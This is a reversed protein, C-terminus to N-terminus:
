EEWHPSDSIDDWHPTDLEPPDPDADYQVSEYPDRFGDHAGLVLQCVDDIFEEPPPDFVPITLPWGIGRLIRRIEEPHTVFTVIKIKQGCSLCTLPDVEYIRSILKAWGRSAKAVKEKTEQMAKSKDDLRKQANAAVQKRLPSSPAFIGHYHRRHRRPYPIFRSIREIFELPELQMFTKGTHCVKPFRYHIWPGNFRINESKFPARACYRILRELGDSDWAEVKVSANLSFGTTEYSLMKMMEEKDFFGRRCFYRLVRGQIAEQTDVIDDQTLAAEHFGLGDESIFIGDAVIIHFHPHYNLTNGFQQIFSIAGIQPNKVAPSCVILRKRIEDVVIKLVTQLTKHNELYHRIRMPFSIVFQRYPVRPLVEDMLHAATEVMSRQSCSPCVGRAKCSFAIFFDKDCGECHACAFGKALIGCGLYKQFANEVYRPVPNEHTDRQKCWSTFNKKIVQFLSTKEPRRPRYVALSQKPCSLTTM